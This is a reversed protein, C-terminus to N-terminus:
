PQIRREVTTKIETAFCFQAGSQIDKCRVKQGSSAIDGPSMKSTGDTCSHDVTGDCLLDSDTGGNGGDYVVRADVVYSKGDSSSVELYALRMNDGLLENGTLVAAPDDVTQAETCGGPTEDLMVGHVPTSSQSKVQQGVMYSYRLSGICVGLSNSGGPATIDMKISGSTLQISSAIGNVLNRTAQQTHAGTLGKTYLRGIQIIAGALMLLVISFVVTAILLEIITFGKQNTRKMRM